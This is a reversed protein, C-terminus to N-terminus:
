KQFSPPPQFLENVNMTKTTTNQLLIKLLPHIGYIFM